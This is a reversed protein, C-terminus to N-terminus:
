KLSLVPIAQALHNKVSRRNTEVLSQKNNESQFSDEHGVDSKEESM